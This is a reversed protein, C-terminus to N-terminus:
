ILKCFPTTSNCINYWRGSGARRKLALIGKDWLLIRPDIQPHTHGDASALPGPEYFKLNVLFLTTKALDTHGDGESVNPPLNQFPTQSHSHDSFQRM